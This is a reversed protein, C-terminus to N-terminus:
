RGARSRLYGSVQEAASRASAVCAPVGVGQYTAGCVALGPQEAVATRIRAVRDLHGVAYQPLAGGWRSVKADIPQGAFGAYATLEAVADAVLDDDDRQLVAADGHRGFSCRAVVVERGSLHPWKASSLTVAKVPRGAIAPVLYGSIDARGGDAARWATTVIALSAADIAALERAAAPVDAALLRGAPSAPTAVVVAAVDLAQEANTAGHVVRWGDTTRSLGRVPSGVAIEGGHRALSAALAGPLTGLGDRLTAFVPQDSPPGAVIARRVARLASRETRPVQPLTAALSLEDARGAYVGGLMPDLLRDVVASGFRRRAWLGVAIDEGPPEGPLWADARARAVEAASLVGRLAAVDSPLGMVTRAPMPRLEGRAWVAARMTQPSVLGADLGLSAVLDAAEPRRVLFAEAGEDVAVGGVECTRLKGGIQRSGELLTVGVGTSAIADAAALGAIGGGIVAVTTATM